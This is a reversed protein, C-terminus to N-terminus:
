TRILLVAGSVMAFLLVFTRLLQGGICDHLLRSLLAGVVLPPVFITAAVFQSWSARGAVALVALSILEGVLFCFAITSRLIPAAQHQYVLALPPGGIDTATETIGTIAGAVVYARRGPRFSPAILTAMAALVTAAGILMNRHGLSFVALVWLGAFTRSGGLRSGRRALSDLAAGERWAVYVNLPIM